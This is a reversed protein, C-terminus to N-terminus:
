EDSEGGAGEVVAVVGDLERWLDRCRGQAGRCLGEVAGCAACSEGKNQEGDVRLGRRRGDANRSLPVLAAATVRTRQRRRRGRGEVGDRGEDRGQGADGAGRRERILGHRQREGDDPAAGRDGREGRVRAREVGAGLDSYIQSRSKSELISNAGGETLSAKALSREIADETELLLLFLPRLLLSSSSAETRKGSEEAVM